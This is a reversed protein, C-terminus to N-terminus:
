AKRLGHLWSVVYLLEVLDGPLLFTRKSGVDVMEGRDFIPAHVNGDEYEDEDGELRFDGPQPRTVNNLVEGQRINSEKPVPAMVYEAAHEIEWKRLRDRFSSGTSAIEPLPQEPAVEIISQAELRSKL